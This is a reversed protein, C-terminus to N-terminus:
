KKVTLLVKYIENEDGTTYTAKQWIVDKKENLIFIHPTANVNMARKFDSNVDLLVNFEWGKGNILPAIGSSTRSDDISIAYILVGTEEQWDAYVENIEDLMKINPTCCSKWFILIIPKGENQITNSNVMRNDLTKIEVDPLRLNLTDANQSQVVTIINITLLLSILLKLINSKFHVMNKLNKQCIIL